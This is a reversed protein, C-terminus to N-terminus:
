FFDIPSLPIHASAFFAEDPTSPYEAMMQEHTAYERRKERYWAIAEAEVGEDMLKREYPDTTDRLMKRERESIDHRYLEIEHWPVFVPRKDSQGAMAREWEDHFFNDMGDATSEMVILTEPRRPISGSVSRVIRGALEPDGDGWFAVESLHAMQYSGGRVANPALASAITVRCGRAAIQNINQSKEFPTFSWGKEEGQKLEAPYDHLLLSYMGRINASADKVHSCILSNWGHHRVLQMWAMYMQVLTSGGWQRAKLMILRIPEGATRQSELYSLVRRQPANLLFPVPTGTLKDSVKVCERCWLPFDDAYRDTFSM